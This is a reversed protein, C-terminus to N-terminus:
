KIVCKRGTARNAQVHQGVWMMAQVLDDISGHGDKDMMKVGIVRARKAVGYTAGAVIGAVHTGHGAEDIYTSVTYDFTARGQFEAHDIKIGSDIIYVDTNYGATDPFDYVNDLGGNRQNIM